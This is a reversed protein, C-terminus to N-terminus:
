RENEQAPSFRQLDDEWEPHLERIKELMAHVAQGALSAGLATQSVEMMGARHLVLNFAGLIEAFDSPSLDGATERQHLFAQIQLGRGYTARIKDSWRKSEPNNEEPPM